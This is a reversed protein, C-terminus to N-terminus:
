KCEPLSGYEAAVWGMALWKAWVGVQEASFNGSKVAAYGVGAAVM